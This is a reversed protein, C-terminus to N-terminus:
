LTQIILMIMMTLIEVVRLIGVGLSERRGFKQIQGEPKDHIYIVLQKILLEESTVM